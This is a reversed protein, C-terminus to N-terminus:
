GYAHMCHVNVCHGAAGMILHLEKENGKPLIKTLHHEYAIFTVVKEVLLYKNVYQM